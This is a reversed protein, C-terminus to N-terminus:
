VWVWRREAGLAVSKGRPALREFVAVTVTPTTPATIYYCNAENGSHIVTRTETGAGTKDENAL